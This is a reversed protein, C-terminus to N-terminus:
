RLHVRLPDSRDVRDHRADHHQGDGTTGGAVLNGPSVRRDGIRGASRPACNPSSSTSSPRACRPRWQRRGGGRRQAQGARAARLDARRHEPRARAAPRPSIARPSLDPELAGPRPQRAGARAHEPVAPADISFLLDGQKVMQGDTFHVKDLYGSVRARVEVSDIAVFRGVYEDNDVITRKTPPAVTVTPPPPAPAKAQQAQGCGPLVSVLACWFPASTQQGQGCGALVPVLLALLAAVPARVPMSM